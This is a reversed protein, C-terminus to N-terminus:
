LALRMTVIQSLSAVVAASDELRASLIISGTIVASYRAWPLCLTNINHENAIEYQGDKTEVSDSSFV